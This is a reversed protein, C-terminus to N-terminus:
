VSVCLKSKKDTASEAGLLPASPHGRPLCHGFPLAAPRLSKPQRTSDRDPSCPPAAGVVTSRGPNSSDAANGDSQTQHSM